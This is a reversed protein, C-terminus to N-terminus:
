DWGYLRMAAGGLFIEIEEKSFTIGSPSAHNRIAEIWDRNNM